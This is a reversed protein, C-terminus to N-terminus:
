ETTVYHDAIDISFKAAGAYSYCPTLRYTTQLDGSPNTIVLTYWKGLELAKKNNGSDVKAGTEMDLIEMSVGSGASTGRWVTM